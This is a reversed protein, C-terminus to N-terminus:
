SHDPGPADRVDTDTWTGVEGTREDWLNIEELPPVYVHLTILERGGPDGNFVRHIETDYSGCVDGPSHTRRERPTLPGDGRPSYVVESATGELVRVVCASGRHDHIPSSQGARWCLVLAAYGSGVKLVNRKYQDPDFAIVREVDRRELEVEKMLDVLLAFPIGPGMEDLRDFMESLKM